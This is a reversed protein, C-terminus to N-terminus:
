VQARLLSAVDYRNFTIVRLQATASKAVTVSFDQQAQLATTDLPKRIVGTHRDGGGRGAVPATQNEPPARHQMHAEM